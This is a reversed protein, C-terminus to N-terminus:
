LVIVEDLATLEYEGLGERRDACSACMRYVRVVDQDPHVRRRLRQMLKNYRRRDLWCEFVSFNVREGYGELIKAVKNRRRDDAIDYCVVVLM